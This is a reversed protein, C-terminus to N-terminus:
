FRYPTIITIIVLALLAIAGLLFIHKMKAGSVFYMALAAIILIAVTSTSPQKLLLFAVTGVILLLPLLGRGAFHKRRADGSFWSALYFILTIKLLEAPQFRIPGFALWRASNNATVGFPTFVLILFVISILLAIFSIRAYTHYNVRTATFFGVLGLSFGFLIQHKLYYYADDYRVRGLNSSASALMILGFIVLFGLCFFMVYDSHRGTRM